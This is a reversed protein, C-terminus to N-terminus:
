RRLSFLHDNIYTGFQISCYPVIGMTMIAAIMAVAGSTELYEQTAKMQM